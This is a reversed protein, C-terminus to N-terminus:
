RRILEEIRAIAATVDGGTAPRTPMFRGAEDATMAGATVALAAARYYLNSQAVDPFAPRVSRWRTLQDARDALALAVLQSVVQALEGRRVAASPQFTHNSFVEMVGAQTVSVIASAAWNGQIDVIVQPSRKPARALISEFRMATIGAVQARTVSTAGALDSLEPPGAAKAAARASEAKSRFSPDIAAAREYAGAAESLRGRGQLVTALIAHAAADNGDLDVAMRAHAEAEVLKDSALETTALERLIAASKPSLTLARSLLAVSEDLRKAQRARQASELLGQVQRFRLMELQTRDRKPDAVLLREMASAAEDYNELGVHAQVLGELAPTYRADRAVAAAFRTIAPKFQRNALAVFGLGTEAPYFAPSRKLLENFERTASRLDGAQLWQWALAQRDRVDAPAKLAAPVDPRPYDPYRPGASTGSKPVSACASAVFALTVVFSRRRGPGKM